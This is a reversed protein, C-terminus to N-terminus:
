STRRVPAPEILQGAEEVIHIRAYVSHGCHPQQCRIRHAPEVAVIALLKYTM